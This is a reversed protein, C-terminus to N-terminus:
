HSLELSEDKLRLSKCWPIRAVSQDSLQWRLITGRRTARCYIKGPLSTRFRNAGLKFLLGRCLTQVLM